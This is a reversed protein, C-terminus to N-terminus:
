KRIGFERIEFERIVFRKIGFCPGLDGLVVGKDRTNWYQQIMRNLNELHTSNEVVFYLIQLVETKYLKVIASRYSM